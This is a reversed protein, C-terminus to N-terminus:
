RPVPAIRCPLGVSGIDVLAFPRITVRVFEFKSM